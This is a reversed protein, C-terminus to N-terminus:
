SPEALGARLSRLLHAYAADLEVSEPALLWELAIGRLAGITFTAVANHELRPDIQGDARAREWWAETRELWRQHLEAFAHVGLAPNLAEAQLRFLLRAREPQEILYREHAQVLVALAALPDDPPDSPFMERELEDVLREIVARLLNEKTAFHFNVLGRSVGAEEGIAAVSSATYGSRAFLRMAAELLRDRTAAAQESRKTAVPVSPMM